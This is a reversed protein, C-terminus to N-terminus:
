RWPQPLEFTTGELWSRGEILLAFQERVGRRVDAIAFDLVAIGGPPVPETAYRIRNDAAWTPLRLSSAADGVRGIALPQERSWTAAGTNRVVVRLRATGRLMSRREDISAAFYMPHPGLRRVETCAACIAPMREGSALAIRFARFTDGSWIDKFSSSTLEGMVATEDAM